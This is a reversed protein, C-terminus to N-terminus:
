ATESATTEPDLRKLYIGIDDWYIQEWKFANRFRMGSSNLKPGIAQILLAELDGITTGTDETLEGTEPLTELNLIGSSSVAGPERFGFWSFRDWMDALHDSLHDKLRKGLGQARTLGVYAPGYEDYLIYIGQQHRFDAVKLKPRNAGLRGLLRFGNRNGRGPAWEIEDRRWFLGYSTIRM